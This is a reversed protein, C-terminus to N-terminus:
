RRLLADVPQLLEPHQLLYATLSKEADCIDDYPAIGQLVDAGTQATLLQYYAEHCAGIAQLNVWHYPTVCQSIPETLSHFLSYYTFGAPAILEFLTPLINMHGGIINGALSSKDLEPHHFM